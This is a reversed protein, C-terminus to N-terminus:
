KKCRVDREERKIIANKENKTLTRKLWSRKREECHCDICPTKCDCEKDM